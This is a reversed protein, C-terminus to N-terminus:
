IGNTSKLSYLCVSVDINTGATIFHLVDEAKVERCLVGGYPIMESATAAFTAGAPVAAAVGNAMYVQAAGEAKIVAMYSPADGPITLTTDTSAPLTASYKKNSEPLGFDDVM